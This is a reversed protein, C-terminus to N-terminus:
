TSVATSLGVVLPLVILNALNLRHRVTGPPRVDPGDGGAAAVCCVIAFTAFDILLLVCVAILWLDADRLQAQHGHLGRLDAAAYRDSGSRGLTAIFKELPKIDWIQSKPYVQLLWKGHPSIFRGVLAPTLDAPGVPDPSSIAALGQLRTLLDASFQAQYDRLLQIQDPQSLESLQDLFGGIKERATGSLPSAKKQLMKEIRELEGGVQSPDLEVPPQARAPLSSLQAGVAQVLLQTDDAAYRPLIAALEEVHHVSPLAEFKQKLELVQQPNDALSVAFLLSNDAQDFIRKQVEVSELGHGALAAPQLRIRRSLCLDFHRRFVSSVVDRAGPYKFDFRPRSKAAPPFGIGAAACDAVVVRGAAGCLSGRHLDLHGM